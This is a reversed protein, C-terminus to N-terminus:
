KVLTHKTDYAFQRVSRPYVWQASLTGFSSSMIEEYWNATPPLFSSLSIACREFISMRTRMKAQMRAVCVRFELKERSESIAIPPYLATKRISSADLLITITRTGRLNVGLVLMTADETAVIVKARNTWSTGQGATKAHFSLISLGTPSGYMMM